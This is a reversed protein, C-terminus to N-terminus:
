AEEFDIIRYRCVGGPAHVDFVEGSARGVLSSGLPSRSSIWGDNLGAGAEPPALTYRKLGPAGIEQITVIDGVEIYRPNWCGRKKDAGQLAALIRGRERRAAMLLAEAVSDLTRSFERELEPIRDRELETLRQALKEQVSVPLRKGEDQAM